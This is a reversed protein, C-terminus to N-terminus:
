REPPAMLFMLMRDLTALARDEDPIARRRAGPRAPDPLLSSGGSTGRALDWGFGAGRVVLRALPAADLADCDAEEPDADGHVVMLRTAAAAAMALGLAEKDCGPYVAVALALGGRELGALLARAGEGLGVARLHRPDLRPDAHVAALLLDLRKGVPTPPPDPTAGDSSTLGDFDAELVPIGLSLLRAAYLHLRGDPGASDGILLVAPVPATPDLAAPVSLMAVGGALKVQRVHDFAHRPELGHDARAPCPLALLLVMIGCLGPYRRLRSAPCSSWRVM